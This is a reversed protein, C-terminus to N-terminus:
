KLSLKPLFCLRLNAQFINVIPYTIWHEVFTSGNTIDPYQKLEKPARETIITCIENILSCDLLWLKKMSKM